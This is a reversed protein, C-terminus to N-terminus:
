RGWRSQHVWLSFTKVPTAKSVLLTKFNQLALLVARMELLNIHEQQQVLSWVGSVSKGELFAGWRFVPIQLLWAYELSRWHVPLNDTESGCDLWCLIPVVALLTRSLHKATPDDGYLLFLAHCRNGGQNQLYAVATTNDTALVVAKSVLLTKFHQLAFLVARM